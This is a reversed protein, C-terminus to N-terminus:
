PPSIPLLTALTRAALCSAHLTTWKFKPIIGSGAPASLEKNVGASFIPRCLASSKMEVPEAYARRCAVLGLVIEKPSAEFGKGEKGPNSLLELFPYVGCEGEVNDKFGHRQVPQGLGERTGDIRIPLQVRWTHNTRMFIRLPM